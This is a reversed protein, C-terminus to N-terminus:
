VPADAVAAAGYEVDTPPSNRSNHSDRSTHSGHSGRISQMGDGISGTSHLATNAILTLM